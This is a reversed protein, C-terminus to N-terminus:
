LNAQLSLGNKHVTWVSMVHVAWWQIAGSERPVKSGHEGGFRGFTAALRLANNRSLRHNRNDTARKQRM